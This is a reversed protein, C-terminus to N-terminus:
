LFTLTDNVGEFNKQGLITLTYETGGSGTQQHTILVYVQAQKTDRVFNVFPIETKFYEGYNYVLHSLDLFVKAASNRWNADTTEETEAVVPHAIPTVMFFLIILGAITKNKRSLSSFEGASKSGQLTNNM